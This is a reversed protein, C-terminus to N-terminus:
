RNEYKKRVNFEKYELENKYRFPKYEQNKNMLYWNEDILFEINKNKFFNSIKLIVNISNYEFAKIKGCSFIGSIGKTDSNVILIGAYKKQVRSLICVIKKVDCYDLTDTIEQYFHKFIKFENRLM